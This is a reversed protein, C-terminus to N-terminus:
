RDFMGKIKSIVGSVVPPTWKSATGFVEPLRTTLQPPLIIHDIVNKIFSTKSGSMKMKEIIAEQIASLSRVDYGIMIKRNIATFAKGIESEPMSKVIEDNLLKRILLRVEKVIPAIESTKSINFDSEKLLTDIAQRTDLTQTRTMQEPVRSLERLITNENSTTLEGSYRKNFYDIVKSTINDRPIVAPHSKDFDALLGRAQPSLQDIQSQATNKMGAYNQHAYISKGKSDVVGAIEDGTTKFGHEIQKAMENTKPNLEKNFQKALGRDGGSLWNFIGWIGASLGGSIIASPIADIVAETLPKDKQGVGEITVQSGTLGAGRTFAGKMTTAKGVLGLTGYAEAFVYGLEGAKEMWKTSELKESQALSQGLTDEAQDFSLMKEGTASVEGLRKLSKKVLGSTFDFPAEAIKGSIREATSEGAELKEQAQKDLTDGVKGFSLVQEGLDSLGAIGRAVGKALGKGVKGVTTENLVRSFIGPSDKSQQPSVVSATQEQQVDPMSTTQGKMSDLWEQIESQSAGQKELAEINAIIQERTLAMNTLFIIIKEAPRLLLV